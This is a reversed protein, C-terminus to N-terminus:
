VMDKDHTTPNMLQEYKRITHGIKKVDVAGDQKRFTQYSNGQIEKPRSLIQTEFMYHLLAKMKEFNNGEGVINSLGEM